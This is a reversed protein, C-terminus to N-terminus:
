MKLGILFSWFGKVLMIAAMYFFFDFAMGFYSLTLFLGSVLDFVGMFDFLFGSAVSSLISWIGKLVWLIALTIIVASGTFPNGSAMWLAGGIIVDMVGLVALIM